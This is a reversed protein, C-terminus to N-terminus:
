TVLVRVSALVSLIAAVVILVKWSRPATRFPGYLFIGALIPGGAFPVLGGLFITALLALILGLVSAPRPDAKAEASM